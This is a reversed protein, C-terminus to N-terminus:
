RVSIIKSHIKGNVNLYLIYQGPFLGATNVHIKGVEGGRAVVNQRRYLIGNSSTVMAIINADDDSTYDIDIGGNRNTLTYHFRDKKALINEKHLEESKRISDNVIDEIVAFNEPLIRYALSTSGVFELNSFSSKQILTYVPYRFGKAYWEYKEEIEQKLNTTDIKATDVGMAMATTTVTQVRLVNDLTDQESLILKGFGDADVVVQGEVKVFHDGCYKGYGKFLSSVTDGYQLPYRMALKKKIYQIKTLRNEFGVQGLTDAQLVYSYIAKGEVKNWLSLSDKKLLINYDKKLDRMTSFDWVEGDGAYGPNSFEILQYTIKASDGLINAKRTLVNQGWLQLSFLVLM